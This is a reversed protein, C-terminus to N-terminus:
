ATMALHDAVAEVHRLAIAALSSVTMAAAAVACPDSKDIRGDLLDRATTNIAAVVAHLETTTDTV